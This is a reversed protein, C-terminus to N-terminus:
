LAGGKGGGLALIISLAIAGGLMVTMAPIYTFIERRVGTRSTFNSSGTFNLTLYATVPMMALPYVLAWGVRPWLASEAGGLLKALVFPMAVIAGLVFGKFSFDRSPLWPLLVPFLVTGALFAALAGAAALTGSTAFLAVTAIVMPILAGKLEVPILITRDLLGFHVRRMDPTATRTALYRPLDAARVPGYEVKFGTRKKVEHAAV